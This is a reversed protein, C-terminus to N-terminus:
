PGTVDGTEYDTASLGRHFAQFFEAATITTLTFDSRTGAKVTATTTLAVRQGQGPQVTTLDTNAISAFNVLLTDDMAFNDSSDNINADLTGTGTLSFVHLYGVGGFATSGGHDIETGTGTATESAKPHLIRVSDRGVNTEGEISTSVLDDFSGSVNYATEILTTGFGPDGTTTDVPIWSVVSEADSSLLQDLIMDASLADGDWIGEATFTGDIHGSLRKRHRDRFTTSEITDKTKPEDVSRFFQSLDVGNIYLCTNKGHKPDKTTLSM